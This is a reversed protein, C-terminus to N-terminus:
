PSDQCLAWVEEKWTWNMRRMKLTELVYPNFQCLFILKTLLFRDNQFIQNFDPFLRSMDQHQNHQNSHMHQPEAMSSMVMALLTVTSLSIWSMTM